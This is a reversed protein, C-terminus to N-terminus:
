RAYEEGSEEGLQSRMWIKTQIDRMEWAVVFEKTNEPM